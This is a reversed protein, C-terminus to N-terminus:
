RRRGLVVLGGLAMLSLGAPEPIILSGADVDNATLLAVFPNIDQVDVWGSGDPDVLAYVEDVGATIGEAAMRTALYAKYGAAGGLAAVFPNIDQVNVLGDLNFDGPLVASVRLDFNDFLFVPEPTIAPGLGWFFDFEDYVVPYVAVVYYPYTQDISRSIQRSAWYQYNPTGDPEIPAGQADELYTDTDYHHWVDFFEYPADSGDTSGEIWEGFNVQYVIQGNAPDFAPDYVSYTAGPTGLEADRFFSVNDPPLDNMGFVCIQGWSDYSYGDHMYFDFSFHISGPVQNAPAAIWQTMSPRFMTAEMVHNQGSVDTPDVSRNFDGINGTTKSHSGTENLDRPDNYTSFGGLGGPNNPPGWHAIWKGMDYTQSFRHPPIGDPTLENVLYSTDEFDGGGVLNGSLAALAPTATFLLPLVWPVRVLSSPM